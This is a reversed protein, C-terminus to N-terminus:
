SKRKVESWRDQVERPSLDHLSINENRARDYLRDLRKEFREFSQQLAKTADVSLTSALSLSALFLDGIEEEIRDRDNCDIEHDIEDCEERVKELAVKADPWRFGNAIAGRQVAQIEELLLRNM